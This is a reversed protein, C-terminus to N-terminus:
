RWEARFGLLTVKDLDPQGDLYVGEYVFGFFARLADEALELPHFPWGDEPDEKKEGAWYPKEFDFPEGINELVELNEDDPSVSLSRRLTGDPEWVAFACWDVVSHMAHLYTRRGRAEELFRDSVASPEDVAVDNTCVITLGDFCGVYVEGDAPNANESLNGDDLETIEYGDYLREVVARAEARDPPPAKDLVSRVDSDAYVIMWDKAGM